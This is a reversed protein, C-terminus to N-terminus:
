PVIRFSDLDVRIVDDFREKVLVDLGSRCNPCAGLGLRTILKEYVLSELKRSIELSTGQPVQIEVKPRQGKSQRLFIEAQNITLDKSM